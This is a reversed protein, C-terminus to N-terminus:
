NSQQEHKRLLKARPGAANELITGLSLDDSKQLGNVLPNNEEKLAVQVLITYKRCFQCLRSSSDIGQGQVIPQYSFAGVFLHM